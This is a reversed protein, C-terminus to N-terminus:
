HYARRHSARIGPSRSSRLLKEKWSGDSSRILEFVNGEPNGNSVTGYLNGAQDFILGSDPARQCIAATCVFNKLM